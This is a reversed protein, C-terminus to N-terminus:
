GIARKVNGPQIHCRYNEHFLWPQAIDSGLSTKGNGAHLSRILGVESLRKTKYDLDIFGSPVGTILKKSNYLEELQRFADGIIDRIHYVSKIGRQQLIDFITQEAKELTNEVEESAEFGISVIKNAGKILQRLISKDWVIKVYNSINATTPVNMAITTLYELGGVADLSGAMRLRDSVTVLDVPEGENFLDMIVSFIAKHGDKYFDESKLVEAAAPIVEKDILMSGLVSQEAEINQPPIRGLSNIDM